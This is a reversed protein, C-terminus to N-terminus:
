LGLSRNLAILRANLPQLFESNIRIRERENANAFRTFAEKRARIVEDRELLVARIPSNAM